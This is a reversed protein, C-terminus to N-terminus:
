RGGPRGEAAARETAFVRLLDHLTYRGPAPETLLHADALVGLLLRARRVPLGALAAAGAPTVDPGEHRPLLRFLRASDPALLRYSGQF